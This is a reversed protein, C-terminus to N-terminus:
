EGVGYADNWESFEDEIRAQEQANDSFRKRRDAIEAQMPTLKEEAKSEEAARGHSASWDWPIQTVAYRLADAFDDKAKTKPTEKKLTSLETALKRLEPTDYVYLMENKFLTNIIGEGRSHDKDAPVFPDGARTAITSFDKSAWDYCQLTPRLGRQAKLVSHKDFIDGATTVGEDGRWGLFVRGKKFDPSVGVFVIAAKHSKGGGGIDVGEYVLWNSPLPHDPRMHKKIDFAGYKRGQRDVIFRGHVRKLVEEHSKCRAVVMAIKEDTWHSATGDIYRQCQYMSVTWKKAQPLNEIEHDEPEMALRWFEQGLTATFVMHFYGDSASIRFLLESYHEEPLEEDCFLAFCTGTQLSQTDQAYTKFYVNVGTTTFAIGAFEKQIKIERWAYPNPRPGQGDGFDLVAETKYKGTPLFQKWKTEFEIVVQNKTPYLYWFQNPRQTWLAPWLNMDTAWNICKRIQTSSKSIQNAACLLNMKCTSDYFERAWAYWNWGYLFPLGEQLEIKRQLLRVKEMKRAREAENLKEAQSPTSPPSSPKTFGTM